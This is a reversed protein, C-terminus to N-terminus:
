RGTAKLKAYRTFPSLKQQFFPGVLPISRPMQFAISRWTTEGSARSSAVACTSDPSTSMM